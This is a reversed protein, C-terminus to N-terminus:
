LRVSSLNINKAWLERRLRLGVYGDALKVDISPCRELMGFEVRVFVLKHFDGKLCEGFISM